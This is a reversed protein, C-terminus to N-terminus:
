QVHIDLDQGATSHDLPTILPPSQASMTMGPHPPPGGHMLMAPHPQAHHPHHHHPHHHHPHHPHGPLYPHLAPAHRLQSPHPSMQPPAFGPPAMSM